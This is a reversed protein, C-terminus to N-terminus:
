PASRVQALPCMSAHVNASVRRAGVREERGGEGGEECSLWRFAHPKRWFITSSVPVTMTSPILRRSFSPFVSSLGPPRRQSRPRSVGPARAAAAAASRVAGLMSLARLVTPAMSFSIHTSHCQCSPTPFTGCPM